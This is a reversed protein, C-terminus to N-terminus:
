IGEQRKANMKKILLQLVASIALLSSAIIFLEENTISSFLNGGFATIHVNWWSSNLFFIGIEFFLVFLSGFEFSDLIGRLTDYKTRLIAFSGIVILFLYFCQVFLFFSYPAPFYNLIPFVYAFDLVYIPSLAFRIPGCSAGSCNFYYNLLILCVLFFTSASFSAAAVQSSYRRLFSVKRLKSFPFCLLSLILFYATWIEYPFILRTQYELTAIRYTAVALTVTSSFFFSLSVIRETLFARKSFQAERKVELVSDAIAM